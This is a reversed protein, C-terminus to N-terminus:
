NRRVSLEMVGRITGDRWMTYISDCHATLYTLWADQSKNMATILEPDHSQQAKSKLFYHNMEKEAIALEKGACFNIQMTNAAYKCDFDDSFSFPSYLILLILLRKKM